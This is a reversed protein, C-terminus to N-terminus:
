TRWSLEYLENDSLAPWSAPYERVRRFGSESEFILSPSTDAFRVEWVRWIHGEEDTVVRTVREHRVAPRFASSTSPNVSSM